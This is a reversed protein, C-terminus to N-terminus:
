KDNNDKQIAKELMELFQQKPIIEAGMRELHESGSQCDIWEIGNDQCLDCFYILALKSADSKKAFMSEGSFYKGMGVGYLGGVLEGKYYSEVSLAFGLKHLNTYADIFNQNIWTGAGMHPPRKINACNQIVEDFKQNISFDWNDSRLKKKLNKTKRVKDTKLIMRNHLQYWYFLQKEESQYWPFYGKSYGNLLRQPHLDNSGGALGEKDFEEYPNPFEFTDLFYLPPKHEVKIM